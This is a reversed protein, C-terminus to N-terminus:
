YTNESKWDKSDPCGADFWENADKLRPYQKKEKRAKRSGDWFVLYNLNNAKASQRKKVDSVTWTEIYKRYRSKKGTDAEIRLQNDKWSNLIQLDREDNEDFWHDNHGKDGNLEIFLDRSKVYFDVHYPYRNDVCVNRLVDDKGFYATLMDYLVDEGQSSNITGNKRRSELIKDRIFDVQVSNPAGYKVFMAEQRNKASKKAIDERQMANEVGYRTKVTSKMKSIMGSKIVPNQNPYEYGYRSLMTQQRKEKSESSHMPHLKLLGSEKRFANDTNYLTRMVNRQKISWCKARLQKYTSDGLLESFVRAHQGFACGLCEIRKAHAEKDLHEYKQSIMVYADEVENATYHQKIYDIQHMIIDDKTYTIGMRLLYKLLKQTSVGTHQKIYESRFGRLYLEEAKKFNEM